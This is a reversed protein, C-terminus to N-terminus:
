GDMDPQHAPQPARRCRRASPRGERSLLGAAGLGMMAVTLGAPNFPKVFLGRDSRLAGAALAPLAALNVLWPWRRDARAVIAAALAVEAAGAAALVADEYGPLVGSVIEREGSDKVLLKPVVGQYLWAGALAATAAAHILATRLTQEPALDEELWLRLRDFSWATAWGILPRFAARDILGGLRGWRPEYDYRTLFRTGEETPVYRWYGSGHRILSRRQESGFALASAGTGGNSREGRTEGWGRVVMGPLVTREYVFRQADGDGHLYEIRSFRVDWREHQAPDQTREWVDAPPCAIEIEVYVPPAV